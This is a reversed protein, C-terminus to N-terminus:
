SRRASAGVESQRLCERSGVLPARQLKCASCVGAGLLAFKFAHTYNSCSCLAVKLGLACECRLLAVSRGFSEFSRGRRAARGSPTINMQGGNWNLCFGVMACSCHGWLRASAGSPSCDPWRNPDAAGARAKSNVNAEGGGDGGCGFRHHAASSFLHNAVQASLGSEAWHRQSHAGAFM